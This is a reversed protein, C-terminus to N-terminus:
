EHCEFDNCVKYYFLLMTVSTKSHFYTHLNIERKTHSLSINSLTVWLLSRVSGLKQRVHTTNENSKKRRFKGLSWINIDGQKRSANVQYDSPSTRLSSCPMFEWWHFCVYSCLMVPTPSSLLLSPPTAAAGRRHASTRTCAGDLEVGLGSAGARGATLPSQWHGVCGGGERSFQLSKAIIGIGRFYIIHFITNPLEQRELLQGM